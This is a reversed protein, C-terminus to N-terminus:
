TLNSILSPPSPSTSITAGVLSFRTPTSVSTNRQKLFGLFAERMADKLEKGRLDFGPILPSGIFTYEDQSTDGCTERQSDPRGFGCNTVRCQKRTYGNQKFVALDIPPMSM